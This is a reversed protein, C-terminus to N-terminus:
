SFKVKRRGDPLWSQEHLRLMDTSQFDGTEHKM